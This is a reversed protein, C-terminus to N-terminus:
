LWIFQGGQILHMKTVNAHKLDDLLAMSPAQTYSVGLKSGEKPAYVYATENM